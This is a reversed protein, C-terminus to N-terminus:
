QRRRSKKKGPSKHHNVDLMGNLCVRAHRNKRVNLSPLIFSSGTYKTFLCPTCRVQSRNVPSILKQLQRRSRVTANSTQLSDLLSAIVVRAFRVLLFNENVLPFSNPTFMALEENIAGGFIKRREGCDRPTPSARM